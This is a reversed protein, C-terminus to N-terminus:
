RVSRRRPSRSKKRRSSSQQEWEPRGVLPAEDVMKEVTADSLRRWDGPDVDHERGCRCPTKRKCHGLDLPSHGQGCNCLKGHWCFRETDWEVSRVIFGDLVTLAQHTAKRGSADYDYFLVIENVGLRRLLRVQRPHLSSGYQAATHFGVQHVRIADTSGEVLVARRINGGIEELKWSGFLTGKRDFGKPYIYRPFGDGLRRHIVGLLDGEPTRYPLTVCPGVKEWSQTEANWLRPGIPDYGLDWESITSKTFKRRRTWYENPKGAFRALYNEPLADVESGKRRAKINKRLQGLSERIMDTSHSPNTYSGGLRTVLQQATGKSECKFCIWLGKRISFQLNHGGGCFPCACMWEDGSRLVPTLWREAVAQFRETM